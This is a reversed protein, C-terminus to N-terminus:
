SNSARVITPQTANCKGSVSVRAEKPDHDLSEYRFQPFTYQETMTTTCVPDHLVVLNVAYPACTNTDTSTWSAAAGTKKLADEISAGEAGDSLLYEWVFDFKVDMPNEDGNRVTDFDGRDMDYIRTKTETWTFNGTGVKLTVSAPSGAGDKVSLTCNKLDIRGAM